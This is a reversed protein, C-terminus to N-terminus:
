SPEEMMIATLEECYKHFVKEQRWARQRKPQDAITLQYAIRGPNAKLVLIDDALFVSESVNHTVFLATIGTEEVLQRLDEDLRLRSLEDLAAFPEDLLIIDPKTILARALSVRMRMGGSLTHPMKHEVHHLGVRSLAAASRQEIEDQSLGALKLPLSINDQVNSWALLTPDQFVFSFTPARGNDMNAISLSGHDPTELGAVLRLLTSKGCGSPGLISTLKGRSISLSIPGIINHSPQYGFALKDTTIVAESMNPGNIRTM